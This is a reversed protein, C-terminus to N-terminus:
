FAGVIEQLFRFIAIRNKSLRIPGRRDFAVRPLPPQSM